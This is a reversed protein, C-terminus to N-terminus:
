RFLNIICFYVFVLPATLLVTDFRDLIGGHGPLLKGSDKFNLSRKLFSEALDSYTGIIVIILATIMWDSLLINTYLFSLLFAFGLCCASGGVFGGITKKPSIREFLPRKGLSIGFVYSATDFVWILIFYGM